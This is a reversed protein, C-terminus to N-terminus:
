RGSLFGHNYGQREDFHDFMEPCSSIANCFRCSTRQSQIFIALIVKPCAIERIPIKSNPNPNPRSRREPMKIKVGSVKFQFKAPMDCRSLKKHFLHGKRSTFFPAIIDIRVIEKWLTHGIFDLSIILPVTVPVDGIGSQILREPM